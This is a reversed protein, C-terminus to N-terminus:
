KKRDFKSILLCAIVLLVIGAIFLSLGLTTKLQNAFIGVLVGGIMCLCVSILMKLNM